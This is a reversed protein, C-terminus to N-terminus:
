CRHCPACRGFHFPSAPHPFCCRRRLLLVTSLLTRSLRRASTPAPTKVPPSPAKTPLPEEDESSADTDIAAEIELEAEVESAEDDDHLDVAAIANKATYAAMDEKWQEMSDRYSQRWGQPITLM